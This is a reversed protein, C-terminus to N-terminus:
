DPAIGEPRQRGLTEIGHSKKTMQEKIKSKTITAKDVM